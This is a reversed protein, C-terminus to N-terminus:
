GDRIVFMEAAWATFSQLVSSTVSARTLESRPLVKPVREVVVQVVRAFGAIFEDFYGTDGGSINASRGADIHTIKGVLEKGASPVESIRAPQDFGNTRDRSVDSQSHGLLVERDRDIRYVTGVWNSQDRWELSLVGGVRSSGELRDGGSDVRQGVVNGVSDCNLNSSPVM